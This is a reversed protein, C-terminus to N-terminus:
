GAAWDSSMSSIMQLQKWTVRPAMTSAIVAPASVTSATPSAVLAPVPHPPQLPLIAVMMSCVLFYSTAWICVNRVFSLVLADCLALVTWFCLCPGCVRGSVFLLGLRGGKEKKKKKQEKQEKRETQTHAHFLFALSDGFFHGSFCTVDHM